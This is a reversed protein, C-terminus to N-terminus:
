LDADAGVVLIELVTSLNNSWTLSSHDYIHIYTHRYIYSRNKNQFKWGEFVYYELFTAACFNVTVYLCICWIVAEIKNCSNTLLGLRLFILFDQQGIVDAWVKDCELNWLNYRSLITSFEFVRLIKAARYMLFLGLKPLLSHSTNMEWWLRWSKDDLETLSQGTTIM